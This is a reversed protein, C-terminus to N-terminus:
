SLTGTRKTRKEREDGEHSEFGDFEGGLGVLPDGNEGLEQEGAERQGQEGQLDHQRLLEVGVDGIDGEGTEDTCKAALEDIELGGCEALFGEVTQQEMTGATLHHADKKEQGGHEHADESADRQRLLLHWADLEVVEHEDDRPRHHEERLAIVEHHEEDGQLGNRNAEVNEDGVEAGLRGRKLGAQFVEHHSRETRAQQEEPDDEEVAHGAIGRKGTVRGRCQVVRREPLKEDGIRVVEEGADADHEHQNADGEFDSCERELNPHGVDILARRCGDSGEEGDARFSGTEGDQEDQRPVDERRVVPEDGRRERRHGGRRNEEAVDGRERLVVDFAEDSERADRMGAEEQEADDREATGDGTHRGRSRNVKIEKRVEDGGEGHKAHHRVDAPGVIGILGEVM